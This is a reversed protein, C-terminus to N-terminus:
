ELAVHVPRVHAVDPALISNTPTVYTLAGRDLPRRAQFRGRLACRSTFPQEVFGTQPRCGPLLWARRPSVPCATVVPLVQDLDFGFKFAGVGQVDQCVLMEEYQAGALPQPKKRCVGSGAAARKAAVCPFRWHGSGGLDVEFLQNSSDDEVDVQEM